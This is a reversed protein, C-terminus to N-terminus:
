KKKLIINKYIKIAKEHKICQKQLEKVETNLHYIINENKDITLQYDKIINIYKKKIKDDEIIKIKNINIEELYKKEINKMNIIIENQQKIKNENITLKEKNINTKKIIKKLDNYKIKTDHLSNYLPETINKLKKEFNKKLLFFNENQKKIINNYINEINTYKESILKKKTEFDNKIISTMDILSILTEENQKLKINLEHLLKEQYLIKNKYEENEIKLKENEKELYLSKNCYKFTEERQISFEDSINKPIICTQYIIYRPATNYEYYNM